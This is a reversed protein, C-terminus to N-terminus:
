FEFPLQMNIDRDTAPHQNRMLTDRIRLLGPPPTQYISKRCIPCTSHKPMWKKHGLLCDAHFRHLCPLEHIHPETCVSSPCLIDTCIACPTIPDNWSHRADFPINPISPIMIDNDRKALDEESKARTM